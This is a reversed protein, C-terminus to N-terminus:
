ALRILSLSTSLAVAAFVNATSARAYIGVENSATTTTLIANIVAQSRQNLVLNSLVHESGAVDSAPAVTSVLKFSVSDALAVGTLGVVDIVATLMYTGAAPLLVRPASALFDVAQYTVQVNYDTGIPAYYFANTAFTNLGPPGQAGQIGQPGVPGVFGATVVLKGAAITGSAGPVAQALTLFAMGSPDYDDVFYWGSTAIFVYTNDLIAPNFVTLVQIHPAAQTPQVFGQTTVTYANNGNSGSAGNAGAPGTLGVIGDSFLRLFYCALGEDAARPNNPLGVDLGCPLSWSVVGDTETKVVVGFFQATFNSIQSPLNECKASNHQTVACPNNACGSPVNFNECSM